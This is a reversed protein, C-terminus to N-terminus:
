RDSLKNKILQIMDGINKLRPSEEDSISIDFTNEVAIIINLHAFSDWGDIDDNTMQDSLVISDDLFVEKFIETLKSQIDM